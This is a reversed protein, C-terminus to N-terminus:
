RGVWRGFRRQIQPLVVWVVSATMLPVVVLFRVPPPLAGVLPDTVSVILLLLPYIASTLLLWTKWRRPGTTRPASPATLSTTPV